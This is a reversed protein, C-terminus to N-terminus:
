LPLSLSQYPMPLSEEHLRREMLRLPKYANSIIEIRYVDAYFFWNLLALYLNSVLFRLKAVSCGHMLVLGTCEM